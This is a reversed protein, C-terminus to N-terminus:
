RKRNHFGENGGSYCTNYKYLLQLSPTETEFMYKKLHALGLRKKNIKTRKLSNVSISSPNSSPDISYFALLSVM